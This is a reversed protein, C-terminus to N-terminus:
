QGALSKPVDGELEYEVAGQPNAVDRIKIVEKAKKVGIRSRQFPDIIEGKTACALM